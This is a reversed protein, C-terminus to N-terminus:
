LKGTRSGDLESAARQIAAAEQELVAGAVQIEHNALLWDKQDIADRVAPLSEAAYGTYLGPAYLEHHYWPRGPLGGPTTLMRESQLLTQNVKSLVADSLPAGGPAEARSAAARYVEASHELAQAGIDIPTFDLDPPVVQPKPAVFPMLPDAVAEFVGEQIERNREQAQERQANFGTELDNAYDKVARALDTFDYPLVDADALRLVTIGALQALARGYLFGPDGFNSMWYYDDYASHYIGVSGGHGGFQMNLSAIGLHDIFASYDSGSGLEGIRLDSGGRLAERKANSRAHAIRYLRLRTEVSMRKAPDPVIEAVQNVLKELSDSGDVSLYGRGNSDSNIYAAAHQSLEQAHEEVWETSGLLGEEEGDWACYIITRKPKWGENRLEGLAQAEALMATLGSLPDRAGNVWADEHNGRIIWEDPYVSGPIKAIVDYIPKINWNSALKLHVRAPGPGVHYTIGLAGRWGAPAVPGGLAQLLPEADGYSLPLVPIKMITKANKIALRHAHLTAGIGPTLPDGPYLVMDMVSGRQVGWRPRWPGKPFVNGKWYGDDRPDSYILCGAAGHEAALKVKLGRWGNGYRAIVIDHKVSIGMQALRDYDPKTGYNVYVLPATVDGDAAYMNYTPFQLQHQNSTPDGPITPEELRAKYTTPSVLEVLRQRPTPLLVYFTEIHADWGWKKFQALIWEVNQKDRASGATHPFASLYKDAANISEANPLARFKREWQEETHSSSSGAPPAPAQSASLLVLCGASLILAATMAHVRTM